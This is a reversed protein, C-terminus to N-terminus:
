WTFSSSNGNLMSICYYYIRKYTKTTYHLGDDTGSDTGTKSDDTSYGRKMLISYTDFYTCTGSLGSKIASNFARIDQEKRVARGMLQRMQSNVPNVSMYFLKCNKAKLTPAIQKIYNIYNASSDLDNVGMNFIIATPRSGTRIKKLLQSYGESMFWSLGEGEAAVFSVGQLASSGLQKELTSAMRATRSDGVFIVQSYRRQRDLRAMEGAAINKERTRNFVVAYLRTNGNVKLLEGAEYDPNASSGSRRSKSWGMFTYGSANAATPLRLYNGKGMTVSKWLKGNSKYLYVTASKEQSAYLKLNKTAKYKGGAKYIRTGNQSTKWGLSVYGKRSPVAPLTFYTGEEVKKNLAQYASSTTGDGMYFTLTYYKSKKRVAYFTTSKTIKVKSGAKYIATSGGKVNTWGLNKYGAAKPVSPLTITANKATYQTLKAYVQATSTGNNNSFKVTYPLRKRVAYFTVNKRVTVTKGASYESRTANKKTSWGLNQYGAVSPVVPLKVKSGKAVEMNLAKMASNGSGNSNLFTVTMKAYRIIYLKTNKTIKLSSDIKYKVSTSGKATTWGKNIYKTSNIDPLTVYTGEVVAVSSLSSTGSNNYFTVTCLSTGYFTLVNKKLYGNWDKEAIKVRSGAAFFVSDDVATNADVKWGSGSLRNNGPVSPLVITTGDAVKKQLSTYVTKGASDAFRVTITTTAAEATKTSGPVFLMVALAAMMFIWKLALKIKGTNNM